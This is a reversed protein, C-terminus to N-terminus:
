LFFGKLADSTATPNEVAPSHVSGPVAVAPCGLRRAMEAQQGPTWADDGEGYLVLVPLGTAALESVRDPESVLADGMGHLAAPVSALFRRHLFATVEPPRPTATPLAQSAAWVAELGEAALLQKMLPLVEARPGGLASPGSDMLVLSRFATPQAIVAARSVLGGFSHGVLHVPGDGLAAALALVDGALSHVTYAEHDDPGPSHYQGRQDMAVARLGAESLPLLIERFDEKSGTFGPVLLVTAVPSEPRADLVALPGGPVEVDSRTVGEPLPLDTVASM